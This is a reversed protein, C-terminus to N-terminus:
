DRFKCFNWSMRIVFDWRQIKAALGLCAWPDFHGREALFKETWLSSTFQFNCITQGSMNPSWDILKLADLSLCSMLRCCFWWINYLIYFIYYIYERIVQLDSVSTKVDFRRLKKWVDSPPLIGLGLYFCLLLWKFFWKWTQYNCCHQGGQQHPRCGQPPPLPRPSWSSCPGLNKFDDKSEQKHRTNYDWWPAM